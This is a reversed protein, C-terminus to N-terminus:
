FEIEIFEAFKEDVLIKANKFPLSAIDEVDFPGYITLDIGVIPPTKKIFRTLCYDVEESIQKFIAKEEQIELTTPTIEETIKTDHLTQTPEPSKIEPIIVDKISTLSKVKEFGKISAILNKYFLKEAETLLDPDIEMLALSANIIKIERLKFLDVILYEFNEKYAKKLDTQIIDKTSSTLNETDKIEKLCTKYESALADPLPTVNVNETERVWHNYLKDYVNKLNM